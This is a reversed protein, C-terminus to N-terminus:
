PKPESSLCRDMIGNGETCAAHLPTRGRRDVFSVDAGNSLQSETTSEYGEACATYLLINIAIHEKIAGKKLDVVVDKAM